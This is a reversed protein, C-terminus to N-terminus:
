DVFITDSNVQGEDTIKVEQKPEPIISLKSFKNVLMFSAHSNDSILSEGDWKWLGGHIDKFEGVNPNLTELIAKRGINSFDGLRQRSYEDADILKKFMDPSKESLHKLFKPIDEKQYDKIEGGMMAHPRFHVLKIINEITFDENKLFCNGSTMFGEKKLFPVEECMTMWRYPLFVYDGVFGMVHSHSKLCGIGEYKEEQERIWQSYKSAKRTFGSYKNYKGYPCRHSGLVAVISCEGRNLLDCNGENCCSVIQAEAREKRGEKFMANHPKFIHAHIIRYNEM